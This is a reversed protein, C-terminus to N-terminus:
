ERLGKLFAELMFSLTEDRDLNLNFEGNRELLAFGHVMSRLGRVAHLAKDEQFEYPKLVKLLLAVIKEGTESIHPNEKTQITMDYLGPHERVFTVYQFGIAHLAEQGAKGIAAESIAAYLKSLTFTTLEERLHAM